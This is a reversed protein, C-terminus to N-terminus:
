ESLRIAGPPSDIASVAVSGIYSFPPFLSTYAISLPLSRSDVDVDVLVDRRPTTRGGARETETARYIKIERGKAPTDPEVCIPFNPEVRVAYDLAM